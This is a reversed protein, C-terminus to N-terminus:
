SLESAFFSVVPSATGVTFLEKIRGTAVAQREAAFAALLNIEMFPHGFTVAQWHIALFIHFMFLDIFLPPQNDYARIPDV